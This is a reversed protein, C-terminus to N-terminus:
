MNVSFDDAQKFTGTKNQDIHGQASLIYLDCLHSLAKGM